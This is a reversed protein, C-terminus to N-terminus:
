PLVDGRCHLLEQIPVTCATSRMRLNQLLVSFPKVQDIRKEEIYRKALPSSDFFLNLTVEAKGGFHGQQPICQSPGVELRTAEM